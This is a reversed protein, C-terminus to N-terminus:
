DSILEKVKQKISESISPCKTLKLHKLRRAQSLISTLATDSLNTNSVNLHRLHRLHNGITSLGEPSIKKCGELSLSRLNPAALLILSLQEDDVQTNSSINLEELRPFNSLSSWFSFDLHPNQSLDISQLNTFQLIWEQTLWLTAKLNLKLIKGSIEEPIKPMFSSERIDLAQLGKVRNLYTIVRSDKFAVETIFPSLTEFVALSKNSVHDIRAKLHGPGDSSIAIEEIHASAQELLFQWHNKSASKLTDIANKATIYHALHKELLIALEQIGYHSVTKLLNEIVEEKKEFLRNVEGTEIFEEIISFQDYSLENSLWYQNNLDFLLSNVPIKKGEVNLSTDKPLYSLLTSNGAQIAKIIRKTLLPSLRGQLYLRTFYSFTTQYFESHNLTWTQDLASVELFETLYLLDKKLGQFLQLDNDVQLFPTLHKPILAPAEM